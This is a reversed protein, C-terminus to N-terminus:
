YQLFINQEMTELPKTNNPTSGSLYWADFVTVSDDQGLADFADPSPLSTPGSPLRYGERLLDNLSGTGDKTVLTAFQGATEYVAPDTGTFSISSAAIGVGRGNVVTTALSRSVGHCPHAKLFTIIPTGYAHAACNTVSNQVWVKIVYDVGNTGHATATRVPTAPAHHIVPRTSSPVRSPPGVPVATTAPTPASPFGSPQGPSGTSVPAGPPSANGATGSGGTTSSCAVLVLVAGAVGALPTMSRPRVRMVCLM